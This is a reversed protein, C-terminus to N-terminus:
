HVKTLGDLCAPLRSATDCPSPWGHPRAAPPLQSPDQSPVPLKRKPCSASSSPFKQCLSCGMGLHPPRNSGEERQPIPFAPNRPSEQLPELLTMLHHSLGFTTRHTPFLTVRSRVHLKRESPTRLGGEIPLIPTPPKQSRPVRCLESHLVQSLDLMHRLTLISIIPMVPWKRGQGMWCKSALRCPSRPFSPPPM